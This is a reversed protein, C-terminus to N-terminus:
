FLDLSLTIPETVKALEEALGAAPKPLEPAASRATKEEESGRGEDPLKREESLAQRAAEEVAAEAAASEEEQQMQTVLGTLEAQAEAIV